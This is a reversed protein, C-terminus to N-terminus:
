AIAPLFHVVIKELLNFVVSWVRCTSTYTMTVPILLQFEAANPM